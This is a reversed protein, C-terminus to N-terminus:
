LMLPVEGITTEYFNDLHGIMREKDSGLEVGFKFGTGVM